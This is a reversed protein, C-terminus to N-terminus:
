ERVKKGVRWGSAGAEQDRVKGRQRHSKWHSEEARDEFPMPHFAVWLFPAGPDGSPVTSGFAYGGPQTGLVALATAAGESWSGRNAGRSGM